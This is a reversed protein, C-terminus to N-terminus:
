SLPSDQRCSWCSHFASGNIEGCACVWDYSDMGQFVEIIQKARAVDEFGVWLEPWVDVFSLEGVGGSAYENRLEVVIDAAELMNKINFVLM